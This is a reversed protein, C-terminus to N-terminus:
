KVAGQFIPESIIKFTPTHRNSNAEGSEILGPASSSYNKKKLIQSASDWPRIVSDTQRDTSDPKEQEPQATTDTCQPEKLAPNNKRM